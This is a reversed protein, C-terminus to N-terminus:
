EDETYTRLRPRPSPMVGSKPVPLISAPRLPTPLLDAVRGRKKKIIGRLKRRYASRATQVDKLAVDRGAHEPSIARCLFTNRHFIRIEGIDRPDYRITVAEGVYAALTPDFFRLGEFHIGDRRVLHPKAVMVLLTDLAELSDPLRHLWGDARWAEVPTADIASHGRTNYTGVIFSGIAADLEPLSLRTRSTPKGGQLHGPLEPLLETNITGFLREVKARGQPRAITSYVLRFRLDAAAQDLHISTFDTGHDVHLVDPIGCVPWDAHPKRWIAQRLALSTNLASPAGLFVM